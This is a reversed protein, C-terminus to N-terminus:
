NNILSELKTKRESEEEAKQKAKYTTLREQEITRAEREKTEKIKRSECASKIQDLIYAKLDIDKINPCEINTNYSDFDSCGCVNEHIDIASLVLSFTNEKENYEAESANDGTYFKGISYVIGNNDRQQGGYLWEKTIDEYYSDIADQLEKQYAESSIKGEGYLGGKNEKIDNTYAELLDRFEYDYHLAFYAGYNKINENEFVRDFFANAHFNKTETTLAYMVNKLQEKTKTNNLLDSEFNFTYPENPEGDAYGYLDERTYENASYALVDILEGSSTCSSLNDGQKNKKEIDEQTIVITNEKQM